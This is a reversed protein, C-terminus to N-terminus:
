IRRGILGIAQIGTAMTRNPTPSSADTKRIKMAEKKGITTEVIFPTRLTGDMYRRAPRFKPNDGPLSSARTTRGAARGCISMPRRM